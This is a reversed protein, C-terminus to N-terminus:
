LFHKYSEHKSSTFSVNPQHFFDQVLLKQCQFGDWLTVSRQFREPSCAGAIMRLRNITGGHSKLEYSLPCIVSDAKMRVHQPTGYTVAELAVIKQHLNAVDQSAHGELLYPKLKAYWDMGYILLMRVYTGFM